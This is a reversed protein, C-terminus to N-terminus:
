IQLSKMGASLMALSLSPDESLHILIKITRPICCRGQSPKLALFKLYIPKLFFGSCIVVSDYSEKQLAGNNIWEVTWKGSSQKIQQVESNSRVHPHIKYTNAYDNLYELVDEQSPFDRPAAKGNQALSCVLATLSIPRCGM